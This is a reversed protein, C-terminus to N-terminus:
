FCECFKVCPLFMWAESLIELIHIFPSMTADDNATNDCNMMRVPNFHNHQTILIFICYFISQNELNHSPITISINKFPSFVQSFPQAFTINHWGEVVLVYVITIQLECVICKINIFGLCQTITSGSQLNTGQDKQQIYFPYAILTTPLMDSIMLFHINWGSTIGM